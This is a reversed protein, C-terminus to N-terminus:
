KPEPFPEPNAGGPRYRLLGISRGDRYANWAKVIYAMCVKERLRAGRQVDMMTRRLVFIPDDDTLMSGSALKEFFDVCDDEDIQNFLWHALALASGPIRLHPIERGAKVSDRLEPHQQLTTLLEKISTAANFDRHGRKWLNVRRVLAALLICNSEQRLKLVDGFTRKAGVDVTDQASLPLNSVVLLRQTTGSKIVALLRHQGDIVIGDDTIKITEGNDDFENRAMDAAMSEVLGQRINRNHLNDGLLEKARDPNIVRWDVRAGLARDPHPSACRETDV